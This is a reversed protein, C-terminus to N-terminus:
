KRKKKKAANNEAILEDWDFDSGNKKKKGQPQPPAGAARARIGTNFNMMGGSQSFSDIDLIKEEEPQFTDAEAPSEEQLKFVDDEPNKVPTEEPAEVDSIVAQEAEELLANLSPAFSAVTKK